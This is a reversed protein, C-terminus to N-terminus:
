ANETTDSMILSVNVTADVVCAPAATVDVADTDEHEEERKEEEADNTDIINAPIPIDTERYTVSDLQDKTFDKSKCCRCCGDLWFFLTSHVILWASKRRTNTHRLKRYRPHFYTLADLAGISGAGTFASLVVLIPPISSETSGLTKLQWVRAITPFIWVLLFNVAFLASARKVENTLALKPLMSKKAIFRKAMQRTKMEKERVTQYVLLLSIICFIYTIWLPIYFFSFRYWNYNDGRVCDTETLDSAGSNM